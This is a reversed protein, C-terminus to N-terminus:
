PPGTTRRTGGMAIESFIGQTMLLGHAPIALTCNMPTAYVTSDRYRVVLITSRHGKPLGSVLRELEPPDLFIERGYDSGVRDAESTALDEIVAEGILNRSEGADYFYIRDGAELGEFDGREAPVACVSHHHFVNHM